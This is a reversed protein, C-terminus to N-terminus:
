YINCDRESIFEDEQEIEEMIKEEKLTKLDIILNELDESNFYNQALGFIAGGLIERQNSTEDETRPLFQFAQKISKEISQQFSTM